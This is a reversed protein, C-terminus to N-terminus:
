AQASYCTRSSREGQRARACLVCARVCTGNLFLRQTVLAFVHESFCPNDRLKKSSASTPSMLSNTM